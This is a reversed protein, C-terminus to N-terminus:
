PYANILGMFDFGEHINHYHIQFLLCIHTPTYLKRRIQHLSKNYVYDYSEWEVDM